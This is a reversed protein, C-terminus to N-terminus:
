FSPTLNNMNFDREVIRMYSTAEEWDLHGAELLRRRDSTNVFATRGHFLRYNDFAVLNGPKLKLKILYDSHYIYKLFQLLAEYFIPVEDHPVHMMSTRSHDGYCIQKM